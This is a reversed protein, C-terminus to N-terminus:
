PHGPVDPRDTHHQIHADPGPFVVSVHDNDTWRVDYPPEGNEHHLGVIEGERRPKGTVPSEVILHDGVEAKM